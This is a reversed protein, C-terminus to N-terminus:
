PKPKFLLMNEMWQIKLKKRQGQWCKMSGAIVISLLAILPWLRATGWVGWALLGQGSTMELDSRGMQFFAWTRQSPLMAVDPPFSMPRNAKQPQKTLLLASPHPKRSGTNLSLPSWGWLTESPGLQFLCTRLSYHSRPGPWKEGPTWHLPPAGLLSVRLGPLLENLHSTWNWASLKRPGLCLHKIGVVEKSQQEWRRPCSPLSPSSLAKWTESQRDNSWPRPMEANRRRFSKDPRELTGEGRPM